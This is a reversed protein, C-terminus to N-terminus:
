QYAYVYTLNPNAQATIGTAKGYNFVIYMNPDIPTFTGAAGPAIPNAVPPAVAKGYNTPGGTLPCILTSWAPYTDLVTSLVGDNYIACTFRVDYTTAAAGGGANAGNGVLEVAVSSPIALSAVSPWNLHMVIGTYNYFGTNGNFAFKYTLNPMPNNYKLIVQTTGSGNLFLDNYGYTSGLSSPLTPEPPACKPVPPPPNQALDDGTPNGLGQTITLGAGLQLVYTTGTAAINNIDGTDLVVPPLSCSPLPGTGGTSNVPGGGGGTVSGPLGQGGCGALAVGVIGALALRALHSRM